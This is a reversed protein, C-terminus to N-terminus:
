KAPSLSPGDHSAHRQRGLRFDVRPTAPPMALHSLMWDAGTVDAHGLTARLVFAGGDISRVTIMFTPM